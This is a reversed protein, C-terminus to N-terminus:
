FLQPLLVGGIEVDFFLVILAPLVFAVGCLSERGQSFGPDYLAELLKGLFFVMDSKVLLCHLPHSFDEVEPLGCPFLGFFLPFFLVCFLAFVARGMFVSSFVWPEVWHEFCQAQGVLEVDVEEIFVQLLEGLVHIVQWLLNLVTFQCHLPM